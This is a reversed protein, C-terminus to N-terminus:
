GRVWRVLASLTTDNTTVYLCGLAFILAVVNAVVVWDVKVTSRTSDGGLEAIRQQTM